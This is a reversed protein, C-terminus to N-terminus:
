LLAIKVGIGINIYNIARNHDKSNNTEKGDELYIKDDGEANEKHEKGVLNAFRYKTEIEFSIPTNPISIELGGGLGVGGRVATQIKQNFSTSTGEMVSFTQSANINGSIFNITGDVGLYPKVIPTTIIAYEIGVGISTINMTFTGNVVMIGAINGTTDNSFSTYSGLAILSLSGFGIKAKGGFSYGIKSLPYDWNEPKQAFSGKMNGQPVNMGGGLVLSLSVPSQAKTPMTAILFSFLIVATKAFITTKM